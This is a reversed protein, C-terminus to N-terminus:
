STCEFNHSANVYKKINKAFNNYKSCYHMKIGQDERESFGVEM